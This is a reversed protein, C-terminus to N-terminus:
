LIDVGDIMGFDKKSKSKYLGDYGMRVFGLSKVGRVTHGVISDSAYLFMLSSKGFTYVEHNM